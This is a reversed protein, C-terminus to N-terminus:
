KLATIPLPYFYLLLLYGVSVLASSIQMIKLKEQRAKTIRFLILGAHALCAIPLIAFRFTVYVFSFWDATASSGLQFLMPLVETMAFLALIVLAFPWALRSYLEKNKEDSITMIRSAKLDGM